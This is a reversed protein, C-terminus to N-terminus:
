NNKDSILKYVERWEAATLSRRCALRSLECARPNEIRRLNTLCDLDYQDLM